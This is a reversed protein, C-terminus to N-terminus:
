AIGLEILRRGLPTQNMVEDPTALMLRDAELDIADSAMDPADYSAVSLELMMCMRITEVRPHRQIMRLTNGRHEPTMDELRLTRGDKTTWTERNRWWALPRPTTTVPSDILKAM